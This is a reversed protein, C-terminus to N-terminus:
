KSFYDVLYEYEQILSLIQYGSQTQLDYLQADKLTLEIKDSYAQCDDYDQWSVYALQTSKHENVLYIGDFSVGLHQIQQHTARFWAVGYYPIQSRVVQELIMGLKMSLNSQKAVHTAAHEPPTMGEYALLQAPNDNIKQQVDDIQAQWAKRPQLKAVQAPLFKDLPDQETLHHYVAAYLVWFALPCQYHAYSLTHLENLIQYTVLKLRLNDNQFTDHLQIM